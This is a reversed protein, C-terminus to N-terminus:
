KRKRLTKRRSKRGRTHRRKKGGQRRGVPIFAWGRPEPRLKDKILELALRVKMRAAVPDNVKLDKAEMFPEFAEEFLEPQRDLIVDLDAIVNEIEGGQAGLAHDIIPQIDAMTVPGVAHEEQMAM